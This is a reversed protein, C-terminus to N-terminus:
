RWASSIKSSFCGVAPWGVRRVRPCRPGPRSSVGCAAGCRGSASCNIRDGPLLAVGCCTAACSVRRRRSTVANKGVGRTAHLAYVRGDTWVTTVTVIDNDTKGLRGLWHRGVNATATGDKRYGFDDIVNVGGDHPAAAQQERM